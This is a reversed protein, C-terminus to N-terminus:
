KVVVKVNQVKGNSMLNVIYVGPKGIAIESRGPQITKSAAVQGTLSYVKVDSITEVEIVIANNEAKVLSKTAVPKGTSTPFSFDAASRPLFQYGTTYPSSSDFQTFIGTVTMADTGDTWRPEAVSTTNIADGDIRLTLTPSENPLQVMTLNANAGWTGTTKHLSEVKILMNEYLEANDILDDITKVMPVVSTVVGHDIIDSFNDPVIETKGNYIDLKGVVTLNHSEDITGGPAGAKYLCIGGMADQMFVELNATQFTSTNSTTVGNVRAYYGLFKLTGDANIEKISNQASSIPSTGWFLGATSTTKTTAANDTVTVYYRVLAGDAQAPITGSYVDGTTNVMAVTQETGDNVSYKLQATYPKSGKVINASITLSENKTPVVLSRTPAEIALEDSIVEEILFDDYYVVANSYTRAEFLFNDAASPAVLEVEYKKWEASSAFYLNNPGRLETANDTLNTTGTRWFCWIRSDTGDGSEVYYWMSIRYTKGGTIAVTQNLNRTATGSAVKVSSTGSHVVTTEKTGNAFTTWGTLVTGDWTEFGPNQLLNQGWGTLAFLAITITLLIKKM